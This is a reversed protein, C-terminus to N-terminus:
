ILLNVKSHTIQYRRQCKPCTFQGKSIDIKETCICVYGHIKAPNGYVLAFDPVDKTVVSGAGILAYRGINVSPVIVSGAGISAGSEIKINGVTWDSPSKPKNQSNVARPLHDNALVVHPGIFVNDKLTSGFYLSSNNQIRCNNGLTVHHDIYVNKAIVCNKGIHAFERVQAQHWIKTNNGIKADSSVEATPHLYYKQSNM